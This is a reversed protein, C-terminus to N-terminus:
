HCTRCGTDHTEITSKSYAQSNQVSPKWFNSTHHRSKKCKDRPACASFSCNAKELLAERYTLIATQQRLVLDLNGAIIKDKAPGCFSEYLTMTREDVRVLAGAGVCNVVQRLICIERWFAEADNFKKSVLYNSASGAELLLQVKIVGIPNTVIPQPDVTIFGDLDVCTKELPTRGLARACAEYSRCDLRERKSAHRQSFGHAVAGKQSPNFPPHCLPDLSCVQGEVGTCPDGGIIAFMDFPNPTSTAQGNSRQFPRRVVTGRPVRLVRTTM